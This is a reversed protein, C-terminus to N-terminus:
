SVFEMLPVDLADKFDLLKIVAMEGMSNRLGHVNRFPEAARM